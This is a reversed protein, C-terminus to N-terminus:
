KAAPRSWPARSRGRAPQVIRRIAELARAQYEAGYEFVAGEALLIKQMEAVNVDHVASGSRVAIAAAIGAAHGILMYQPEM